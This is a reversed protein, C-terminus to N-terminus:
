VVFSLLFGNVGILTYLYNIFKSGWEKCKKEPELPVPSYEKTKKNSQEILKKRIDAM